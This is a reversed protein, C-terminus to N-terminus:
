VRAAAREHSLAVVFAGTLKEGVGEFMELPHM